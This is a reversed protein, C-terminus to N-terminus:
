KAISLQPIMVMNIVKQSCTIIEKGFGTLYYKYSKGIKKILGHVRLRKLLRSLQDSSYHQLHKALDKCRFGYINFEGRALTYVVKKDAKSFFNLGKYNRQEVTKPETAKELKKHGVSDDDIASIFELYRNNSASVIERLPKLSYINKKMAAQKQTSSGDRHIVERYHKFFTVDNVTTEIRIIHAFKDYMKISAKGMTHKIRSGEIRVHYNNGIEGQYRPDLKKGLFSVINEPKVSHIAKTVLGEYLPELDEQKKFVIDTAYECQMISWHYQQKFTAHVPCYATAFADLKKHLKEIALGDSISQAKDWDAISIFANDMMKYDVKKKTLENSLWGHGNFFIQLKFPLWTPVRVYCLGLLEDIFYFYYTLCKSQDYKLFTKHTTKNHWPKYTICGEMVSLIHVLGPHTGRKKLVAEILAEKRVNGKRIFEILLGSETALKEANVKLTDRFPEAFKAYDFIRINNQFLYATLHGANSLVPLTGTIVIRDYCGLTGSIKESYRQTLLEM